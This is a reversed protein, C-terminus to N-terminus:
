KGTNRLKGPQRMTVKSQLNGPSAAYREDPNSLIDNIESIKLETPKGLVENNANWHPRFSDIIAISKNFIRHQSIKIVIKQDNGLLEEVLPSLKSNFVVKSYKRKGDSATARYGDASVITKINMIQYTFEELNSQGTVFKLIDNEEAAMEELVMQKEQSLKEAVEEQTFEETEQVEDDAPPNGDSVSSHSGSFLSNDSEHSPTRQMEEQYGADHRDFQPENNLDPFSDSDYDEDAATAGGHENVLSDLRNKRKRKQKNQGSTETPNEGMGLLDDLNWDKAVYDNPVTHAYSNYDEGNVAMVYASALQMRWLLHGREFKKSSGFYEKAPLVSEVYGDFTPLKTPELIEDELKEGDVIKGEVKKAWKRVIKVGDRAAVSSKLQGFYCDMDRSNMAFIPKSPKALEVKGTARGSQVNEIEDGANMKTVKELIEVMSVKCAEMLRNKLAEDFVDKLPQAVAFIEVGIVGRKSDMVPFAAFAPVGLNNQCKVVCSELENRARQVNRKDNQALLNPNFSTYKSIRPNNEM